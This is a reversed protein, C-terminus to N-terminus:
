ETALLGAHVFTAFEYDMQKIIDFSDVTWNKILEIPIILSITGKKEICRYSSIQVLFTKFSWM